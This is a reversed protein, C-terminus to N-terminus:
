SISMQNASDSQRGVELERNWANDGLNTASIWVYLCDAQKTSASVHIFRETVFFFWESINMANLLLRKGKWINHRWSSKWPRLCIRRVKRGITEVSQNLYVTGHTLPTMVLISPGTTTSFMHSLIKAETANVCFPVLNSDGAFQQFIQHVRAHPLPLGPFLPVAVCRGARVTQWMEAVSREALPTFNSSPSLSTHREIFLVMNEVRSMGSLTQVISGKRNYLLLVPVGFVHHSHCFHPRDGCNMSYFSINPVKEYLSALLTFESDVDSCSICRRKKFFTLYWDTSPGFFLSHARVTSVALSVLQWMRRNLFNSRRQGSCMLKKFERRVGTSDSWVWSLTSLTAPQWMQWMQWMQQVAASDAAASVATHTMRHTVAPSRM